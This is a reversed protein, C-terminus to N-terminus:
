SVPRRYQLPHESHLLRNIGRERKDTMAPRDPNPRDDHREQQDQTATM